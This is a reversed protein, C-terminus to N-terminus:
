RPGLGHNSGRRSPPAFCMMYGHFSPVPFFVEGNDRLALIGKDLLLEVVQHGDELRSNLTREVVAAAENWAMAPGGDAPAMGHALQVVVPRYRQNITKLRLDYYNKRYGDGMSVVACMADQTDLRELVEATEVCARAYCHVHQPFGSSAEALTDLLQRPVALGTCRSVIETLAEDTESRNLPGLALVTAIRSITDRDATGAFTERAASLVRMANTLGAAVAMIPRGHSGEHLVGLVSRGVPSINQVEDVTVILAKDEM